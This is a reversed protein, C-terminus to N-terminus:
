SGRTGGTKVPKKAITVNKGPKTIFKSSGANHTQNKKSNKGTNKNNTPLAMTFPKLNKQLNFNIKTPQNM